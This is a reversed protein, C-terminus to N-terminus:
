STEAETTKALAILTEYIDNFLADDMKAADSCAYDTYDFLPAGEFYTGAVANDSDRCQEVLHRAIEPPLTFKPGPFQENLKPLIPYILLQPPANKPQRRNLELKFQTIVSNISPNRRGASVTLSGDPLKLAHELFDNVIDHSSYRRVLFEDPFEHNWGQLFRAYNNGKLYVDDYFDQLSGTYSTAQVRQAYSSALYDLQNRLYVIVSVDYDSFAERVLEPKCNQFGESSIVATNDPDQLALEKKLEVFSPILRPDEIDKRADANRPQLPHALAAHGDKIRGSQPVFYGHKALLAARNQQLFSQISTTGTKHRGIHLLLKRM